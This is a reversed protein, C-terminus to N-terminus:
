MLIRLSFWKLAKLWRLIQLDMEKPSFQTIAVGMFQWCGVRGRLARANIYGISVEWSEVCWVIASVMQLQCFWAEALARPLGHDAAAFCGRIGCRLNLVFASEEIETTKLSVSIASIDSCKHVSPTSGLDRSSCGTGRVVLWRELGEKTIESFYFDDSYSEKCVEKWHIILCRQPCTWDGSGCTQTHFTM